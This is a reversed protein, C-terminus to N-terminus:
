RFTVPLMTDGSNWFKWWPRPAVMPRLLPRDELSRVPQRQRREVELMHARGFAERDGHRAQARWSVALRELEEDNLVAIAAASASSGSADLLPSRSETIM